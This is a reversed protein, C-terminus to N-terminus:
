GLAWTGTVTELYYVAPFMFKESFHKLEDMKKQKRSINPGEM